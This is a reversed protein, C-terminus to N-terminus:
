VYCVEKCVEKDGTYYVEEYHFFDYVGNKLSVAAFTQTLGDIVGKIKEAGVLVEQGLHLSEKTVMDFLQEDNEDNFDM